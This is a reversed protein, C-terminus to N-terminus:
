HQEGNHCLSWIQVELEDHEIFAKVYWDTDDYYGGIYIDAMIGPRNRLEESKFFDEAELSNFVERIVKEPSDDYKRDLYNYVRITPAFRGREILSKLKDLPYSPRNSKKM